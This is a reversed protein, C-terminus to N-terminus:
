QSNLRYIVPFIELRNDHPLVDAVTAMCVDRDPSLPDLAELKMGIRFGMPTLAKEKRERRLNPFLAKPAMSSTSPAQVVSFLVASLM